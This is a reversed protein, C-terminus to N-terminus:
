DEWKSIFGSAGINISFNLPIPIAELEKSFAFSIASYLRKFIIPPQFRIMNLGLYRVPPQFETIFGTHYGAGIAFAKGTYSDYDAEVNVQTGEFTDLNPNPNFTDYFTVALSLDLDIGGGVNGGIAIGFDYKNEGAIILLVSIEVGAGGVPTYLDFAGTLSIADIADAPDMKATLDEIIQELDYEVVEDGKYTFGSFHYSADVKDTKIHAFLTSDGKENNAYMRIGGRSTDNSSTNESTGAGILEGGGHPRIQRPLSAHGYSTGYADGASYPTMGDPDMFYIPSNFAYNYPSHRRMLEAMPDINMWRGLAPDYNRATVDVWEIDFEEQHEKGTFGLKNASSNGNPSVNDNYGKHKLGFPYFNNEKLIEAIGDNNTDAYSLRVNGLHDKYQYVYKWGVISGSVLEPSVYGESTPFYQLEPDGIQIKEYIYGNAYDTTTTGVIKRLKIGTADYVYTITNGNITVVVPLNLHNYTINTIGKNADSVMNGNVDYGYETTLNAGDKFGYTTDEIDLVKKLRNSSTEYTYTLDDMTGFHGTTGSVPNTVIHGERQLKTINGNKDYNVLSLNYDGTNDIGKLIRNLADYTYTYTKVSADTNATNWSTQSINGNFLNKSVDIADNYRLTFNFLDNDNKGDENINKLWGRINYKYDVTQLRANGEEGGVGKEILQGLENYKNSSIVVHTAGDISQKQELLRGAHDYLFSDITTITAQSNGTNTHLTKTEEIKGAFDLKTQVIDTTNLYDNETYVHILRGKTDYYSITTIWKEPTVDLVKVRSVTPLGKTRNSILNGYEHSISSTNISTISLDSYYTDYNDYHNVMLIEVNTPFNTNSYFTNTSGASTQKVEYLESAENNLNDLDTQMTSQSRSDTFLGTYAVRGLKDYKTFLWENSLKQLADQVMVLRDLKDYVMSQWDKGPLKKEAIRNKGDYKYQYALTNLNGIITTISASNPELKPPLVFSLNGFKDYVYYTDHAVESTEGLDNADGDANLDYDSYHRKLLVQGEKNEFTEITHNKGDSSTWNEDKTITKYLEGSHYYGNSTLSGWASVGFFRVESASNAHYEIKSEHGNGLKWDKGPSAVKLTRNLPSPEIENEAYPNVDALLTGVFDDAYNTQYYQKVGLENSDEEYAGSSNTDLVFPLYQKTQRGYEDYKSHVIIDKETASQRIGVSQMPRGLGDIYTVTKLADANVTLSDLLPVGIQPVITYIYNENSLTIPIVCGTTSAGGHENPCQDDSNLVYGSPEACQTQSINPDGLGDGDADEYWTPTSLTVQVGTASSWTGSELARIYYTGNSAAIYNSTSPNITSIGSANTGQWYWSQGSPIPGNSVLEASTCTINTISPTNPPLVLLFNVTVDHTDQLAGYNSATVVYKITHTGSATWNIQATTNTSSQVTGGGGIVSWNASTITLGSSPTITYSETTGVSSNAPGNITVTATGGGGRQAYTTTVVTLM